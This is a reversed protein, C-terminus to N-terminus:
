VNIYEQIDRNLRDHFDYITNFFCKVHSTEFRYDSNQNTTNIDFHLQLRDFPTLNTGDIIDGRVRKLLTLVFLTDTLDELTIPQKSISKWDWEFPPHEDYFKPPKFLHSYIKSLREETMEILLVTTNIALRNARKHFNSQIREFYDNVDTCFQSLEGLNSGKPDTPNKDIDIRSTAFKVMWENNSTTLMPRIEPKKNPALEQFNSPIFSKDSFIDILSKVTNPVPLIDEANVFITAQYRINIDIM